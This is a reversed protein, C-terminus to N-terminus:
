EKYTIPSISMSSDQRVATITYEAILDHKAESVRDGYMCFLRVRYGIYCKGAILWRIFHPFDGDELIKLEAVEKFISEMNPKNTSFISKIDTIKLLQPCSTEGGWHRDIPNMYQIEGDHLSSLEIYYQTPIM